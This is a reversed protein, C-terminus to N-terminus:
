PLTAVRRTWWSSRCTRLPVRGSRAWGSWTWGDWRSSSGCIWSWGRHGTLSRSPCLTCDVCRFVCTRCQRSLIRSKRLVPDGVSIDHAEDASPEEDPATPDPTAAGPPHTEPDATVQALWHSVQAIHGRQLGTVPNVPVLLTARGRATREAAEDPDRGGFRDDLVAVPRTGVAAYLPGLKLQRGFRVGGPGVDIVPLGTPLGLRPAVWTAAIRGWSTCWVLDADRSLEKLWAGHDPHLWVLGSVHQGAPNPGDYRHPRYGLERATPPHDPNLVGDVDIAVVPRARNAALLADTPPTM